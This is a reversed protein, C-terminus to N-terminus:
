VARTGKCVPFTSRGWFSSGANPGAKAIRKVMGAGCRPCAVSIAVQQADIRRQATGPPETVGAAAGGKSRSRKIWEFLQEGDILNIARGSAFEEADSTYTGSTILYGGGAGNATIVGYLERVVSVPVRKTRWQKCQVLFRQGSRSIVLDVGGDAGPGGREAVRFGQERFAEGVMLEFQQWSMEELAAANRGNRVREVLGRRHARGWASACAAIVCLAPLLYQAIRAVGALLTATVYTPVGQPGSVPPSGIGPSALAHCLLFAALGIALCAWWPLLALVVIIDEAPYTKSRRAM